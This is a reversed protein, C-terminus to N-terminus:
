AIIRALLHVGKEMRRSRPDSIRIFEPFFEHLSRDNASAVRSFKAKLPLTPKAIFSSAIGAQATTSVVQKAALLAGAGVAAEVM